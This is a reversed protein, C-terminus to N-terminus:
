EHITGKFLRCTVATGVPAAPGVTLRGNMLGARYHMIKLGMGESEVPGAPFGVGNDQIRLTVAQDDEVLTITIRSSRGHRLANTVAEQAIHFLHTATQNDDVEVPNRGCTLTCSV